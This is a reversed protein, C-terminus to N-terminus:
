LVQKGHVYVFLTLLQSSCLPIIGEDRKESTFVYKGRLEECLKMLLPNELQV